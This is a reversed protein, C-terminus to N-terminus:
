TQPKGKVALCIESLDVGPSIHGSLLTQNGRHTTVTISFPVWKQLEKQYQQAAYAAAAVSMPDASNDPLFPKLDDIQDGTIPCTIM